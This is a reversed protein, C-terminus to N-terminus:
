KDLDKGIPVLDATSKISDKDSTWKEPNWMSPKSCLFAPVSCGVVEAVSMYLCGKTIPTHKQMGLLRHLWLNRIQRNTDQFEINTSQVNVKDQTQQTDDLAYYPVLYIKRNQKSIRSGMHPNNQETGGWMQM